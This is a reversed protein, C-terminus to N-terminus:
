MPLLAIKFVVDFCPVFIVLATIIQIHRVAEFSPEKLKLLGRRALTGARNVNVHRCHLYHGLASMRKSM